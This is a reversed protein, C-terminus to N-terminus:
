HRGDALSEKQLLFREEIEERDLESKDDIALFYDIPIFMGKKRTVDWPSNPLHSIDTMQKATLYKNEFAVLELLKKENPSFCDFDIKKNELVVKFKKFDDDEEDEAEEIIILKGKLFDPLKNEAIEKYLEQPVPGFPYTYYEYGTVSMGYLRFHEFDWNYLLKFLKTRGVNQTHTVFYKIGNLIKEETLNVKYRGLFSVQIM